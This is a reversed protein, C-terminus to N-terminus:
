RKLQSLWQAADQQAPNYRLLTELAEIGEQLQNQELYLRARLLLATDLWPEISLAKEFAVAAAEKNGARLFEKGQRVWGFSERFKKRDGVLRFIQTRGDPDVHVLQFHQPLYSLRAILSREEPDPCVVWEAGVLYLQDLWEDTVNLAVHIPAVLTKNGTVLWVTPDATGVADGDKSHEKLWQYAQPPHWGPAAVQQFSVVMQTAILLIATGTIAANRRTEPFLQELGKFLCLFLLPLVPTFFRSSQYPWAMLVAWFIALTCPIALRGAKLLRYLGATWFLFITGVLLWALLQQYGGALRLQDFLAPNGTLMGPVYLLYIKTNELAIEFLRSSEPLADRYGALRSVWILPAIFGALYLGILGVTKIGYGRRWLHLFAAPFLFLGASRVYFSLALLLALVVRDFRGEQQGQFRKELVVLVATLLLAFPIESMIEVHYQMWDFNLALLLAILPGKEGFRRWLLVLLLLGCAATTARMLATNHPSVFQAPVLLLPYGPPYKSDFGGYVNYLRAYGEGSAIGLSSAIYSSDDRYTGVSSRQALM